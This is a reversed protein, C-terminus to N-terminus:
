AYRAACSLPGTSSIAAPRPRLVRGENRGANRDDRGGVGIRVGLQRARAVLVGRGEGRVTVQVTGGGLYAGPEGFEPAHQPGARRREDREARDVVLAEAEAFREIFPREGGAVAGFLADRVGVEVAVFDLTQEGAEFDVREFFHVGGFYDAGPGMRRVLPRRSDQM